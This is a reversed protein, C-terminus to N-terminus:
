GRGVITVGADDAAALTKGLAEEDDPDVGLVLQREGTAGFSDQAPPAALVVVGTLLPRSVTRGADGETSVWVDVVSGVGVEPPVALSPVSVPVSLLGEDAPAGLAAAPLLEGAAVPRLLTHATPLEAGTQLYRGQDGDDLFRVRVAVLDGTSVEQGTVLDTQAAWVTVSDDARAMLRAGVLVSAAVIAVGIWLRPDRWGPATARTAPPPDANGLTTTVSWMM